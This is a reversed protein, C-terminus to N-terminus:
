NSKQQEVIEKTGENIQNVLSDTENQEGGPDSPIDVMVGANIQEQRFDTWDGDVENVFAEMQEDSEIQMSRKSWFSEPIKKDALTTKVREQYSSRSQETKYGEIEQKLPTVAANVVKTIDELTLGGQAPTPTPNPSPTEAKKGDKLGHKNEYNQVAKKNSDTVRADVESQVIQGYDIGDVVSQLQSKDTVSVAKKSAIRELIAEPVGVFKAVLLKLLEEKM